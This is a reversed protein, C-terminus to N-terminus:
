WRVPRREFFELGKKYKWHYRKRSMVREALNREKLKRLVYNVTTRPLGAVRAIKAIDRALSQTLLVVFVRAENESLGLSNLIKQNIEPKNMMQNECM